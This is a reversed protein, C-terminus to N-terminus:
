PLAPSPIRSKDAITETLQMGFPRGLYLSCSIEGLFVPIRFRCVALAPRGHHKPETANFSFLGLV